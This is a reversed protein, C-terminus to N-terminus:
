FYSAVLVRCYSFM